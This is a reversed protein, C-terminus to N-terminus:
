AHQLAQPNPLRAGPSAPFRVELGAASRWHADIAKHYPAVSTLTSKQIKARPKQAPNVAHPRRCTGSPGYPIPLRIAPSDGAGGVGFQVPSALRPPTVIQSAIIEFRYPRASVLNLRGRFVGGAFAAQEARQPGFSCWTALVVAAEEVSMGGGAAEGGLRVGPPSDVVLWILGGQIRRGAGPSKMRPRITRV